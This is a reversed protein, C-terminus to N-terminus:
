ENEKKFFPNSLWNMQYPGNIPTEHIKDLESDIFFKDIGTILKNLGWFGNNYFGVTAVSNYIVWYYDTERM